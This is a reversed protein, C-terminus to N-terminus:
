KKVPSLYLMYYEIYFEVNLDNDYFYRYYPTQIFYQSILDSGSAKEM